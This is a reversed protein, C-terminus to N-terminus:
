RRSTARSALRRRQQGRHQGPRVPRGRRRGVAGVRGPRLRRRRRQAGRAGPAKVLDVTEALGDENWDSLALLAGQQAAQLALERGIGSGAGTIVVVKDDLTKMRRSRRPDTAPRDLSTTARPRLQGAAPPVHLHDAAVAHHQPRARRPVLELLRRHEVGHAADAAPHRREVGDQATQRPEVAAVDQARMTRLADIIYAIQSEIMFVMLSHGLGTNPGVIQFLNPFGRTTTGKYAAMGHEAWVDALSRGDRGKIHEAIPQETTHFGTAM